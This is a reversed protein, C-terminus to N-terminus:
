DGGAPIPLLSELPSTAPPIDEPEEGLTADVRVRIITPEVGDAVISGDAPTVIDLVLLYDGAVNPASLELDVPVLAGPKLGPPLPAGAASTAAAAAVQDPENTGLAVWQGIVEAASAPASGDVDQDAKIAKHGWANRGLNAVWLPISTAAGPAVDAQAPAVIQADLQGTVRVILSPLLAQTAADYAVGDPDHLTVTLRYRGPERPATIGFSMSRKGIKMKVPEVVDGLREPVVLGLDPAEPGPEPSPAVDPSPTPSLFPAADPSPTPSLSPAIRVEVSPEASGGPRTAPRDSAEATAGFEPLPSAEATAGFEPLPPLVVPSTAEPEAAPEPTPEPDTPTPEPTPTAKPAEPAVEAAPDAPVPDLSDWRVSAELKRPLQDRDEVKYRFTYRGDTGATAVDGLAPVGIEIGASMLSPVLSATEGPPAPIPANSGRAGRLVDGSALGAKLVISREFGSSRRAPDLQAVYGPSRSSEFALVHGNATPAHRWASDISRNGQLITRLMHSPSAYAEAIVASAGAQIFGAAFNDVRQRAQELTGEAVGPETNGSAYCLHNLLVVANKALKVGEAIRAEGFYQHQHDDGEPAPNLGFGNQTPTYLADRYRSPWGNGHGMYIVLSADQLAKRVRPWTANPSYLETVDSTYRRALSAAARAESRYRNTAAGSPGVIVVVKPVAEERAAAMAPAALGAVVLSTLM